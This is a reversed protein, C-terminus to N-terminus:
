QDDRDTFTFDSFQSSGDETQFVDNNPNERSPKAPAQAIALPAALAAAALVSACSLSRPRCHANM